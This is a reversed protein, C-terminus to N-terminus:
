TEKSEIDPGNDVQVQPVHLPINKRPVGEVNRDNGGEM